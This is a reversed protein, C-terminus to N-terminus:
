HMDRRVYVRAINNEGAWVQARRVMISVDHEDDNAFFTQGFEHASTSAGEAPPKSSVCVLAYHERARPTEGERLEIVEAM